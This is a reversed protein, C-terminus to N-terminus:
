WARTWRRPTACTNLPWELVTNPSLKWTFAPAVVQRQASVQDRFSGKDEVAVNLRYATTLFLGLRTWRRGAWATAAQM